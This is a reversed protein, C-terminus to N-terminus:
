HDHGSHDQGVHPNVQGPGGHPPIASPNPGETKIFNIVKAKAKLEATIEDRVKKQIQYKITREADEYAMVEPEATVKLLHFGKKSEIPESVTGVPMSFAKEALIKLGKRALRKDDKSVKGLDGGKRKSIKDDSEAKALEEFNEGQDLKTKIEKIKKLAEDKTRNFKKKDGTDFNIQIQSVAIKTFDSDKKSEYEEKSKQEIIDELFAEAIIIKSYLAKKELVKDSKDIGKKLAEQYLLEQLIINDVFQAKAMPNKLQAELRPNVRAVLDLYGEKIITNNVQVLKNGTDAQPLKEPASIDTGGQCATVLLSLSLTLVTKKM